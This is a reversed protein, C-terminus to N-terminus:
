NFQAQLASSGRGAGRVIFIAASSSSRWSAPFRHWNARSIPTARSMAQAIPMTVSPPAKSKCHRVATSVNLEWHDTKQRFPERCQRSRIHVRWELHHHQAHILLALYLCTVACWSSGLLWSIGPMGLVWSMRWLHHRQKRCQCWHALSQLAVCYGCCPLKQMTTGAGTSTCKALM